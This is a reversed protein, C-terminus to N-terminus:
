SIWGRERYYKLAGPHFADGTQESLAVAAAVGEQTMHRASDAYAASLLEIHRFVAKVVGYVVEDPLEARAVLPQPAAVTPVDRTVFPYTGAPIVAPVCGLSEFMRVLGPDEFPLLRVDSNMGLFQAIPIGAWTLGVDIRGSELAEVGEASALLMVELKAGWSEAEELDAGYYQLISTFLLTMIGAGCGATFPYRGMVLDSPKNFATDDRALLHLWVFSSPMVVRYATLSDFDGDPHLPTQVELELARPSPPFFLDAEGSMRKEMLRAEGGAAMSTVKWDPHELRVAEAIADARLQTSTGAAFGLVSLTVEPAGVEDSSAPELRSCGPVISVAIVVCALVILGPKRDTM